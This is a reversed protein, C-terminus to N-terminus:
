GRFIALHPHAVGSATSQAGGVYLNRGDTALTWVGKKAGAVNFDGIGPQWSSDFQGTIADFRVGFQAQVVYGNLKTGYYHYGSNDVIYQHFHGGAYLKGGILALAQFDGDARTFFRTQGGTVPNYDLLWNQEGGIAVYLHTPTSLLDLPTNGVTDTGSSIGYPQFGTILAGTASNLAALSPRKTTVSTHTVNNFYGGVFLRSGDSSLALSTVRGDTSKPLTTAYPQNDVGADWGAPVDGTNVDFAALHAAAQGGNVSLFDGGLYVTTTSAVLSRVIYSVTPVGSSWSTILSGDSTTLAGFHQSGAGNLQTFDGGVYLSSGDPSLAIAYVPGNTSGAWTTIPLGTTANLAAIHAAAFSSGGNNVHTFTGAIYLVGNSYASTLVDGDTGYSGTQVQSSVAGSSVTGLGKGHTTTPSGWGTANAPGAVALSTLAIAAVAFGRARRGFSRGAGHKTLVSRM